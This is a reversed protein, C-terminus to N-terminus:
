NVPNSDRNMYHGDMGMYLKPASMRPLHTNCCLSHGSKLDGSTLMETFTSKRSHVIKNLQVFRRLAAGQSKLYKPQANVNLYIAQGMPFNKVLLKHTLCNSTSMPPAHVALMVPFNSWFKEFFHSAQAQVSATKIMLQVAAMGDTINARLPDDNNGPLRPLVQVSDELVTLLISKYSKRLTGDAHALACPVPSLDYSVPSKNLIIIATAPSYHLTVPSYTSLTFGKGLFLKFILRSIKHKLGQQSLKELQRIAFNIEQLQRALFM